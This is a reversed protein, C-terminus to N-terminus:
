DVIDAVLELDGGRRDSLSGNFNAESSGATSEPSVATEGEELSM